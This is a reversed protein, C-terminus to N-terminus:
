RKLLLLIPTDPQQERSVHADNGRYWQNNINVHAHYHGSNRVPVKTRRDRTPSYTIAAIVNYLLPGQEQTTIQINEFSSVQTDIFVDDAHDREDHTIYRKLVLIFFDSTAIFEAKESFPQQSGCVGCHFNTITETKLVDTLNLLPGHEVTGRFYTESEEPSDREANCNQCVRKYKYRFIYNNLKSQNRLFTELQLVSDHQQNNDVDDNVIQAFIGRLSKNANGVRITRDYLSRTITNYNQLVQQAFEWFHQEIGAVQM